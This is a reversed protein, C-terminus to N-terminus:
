TLRSSSADLKTDCARLGKHALGVRHHWSAVIVARPGFPADGTQPLHELREPGREGAAGSVVIETRGELLM